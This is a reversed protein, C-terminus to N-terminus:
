GGAHLYRQMDRYGIDSLVVYDDGDDAWWPVILGAKQLATIWRRGVDPGVWAATAAALHTVRRGHETEIFVWLLIDWAPDVLLEPPVFTRRRCREDYM